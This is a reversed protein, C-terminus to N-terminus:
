RVWMQDFLAYGYPSAQYNGVRRSTLDPLRPTYLPVVAAHDVLERDIRAALRASVSPSGQNALQAIGADIRKDCFHGWNIGCGFLGLIDIARPAGFWNGFAANANTGRGLATFYGARDPVYHLRTHYGLQRLLAVLYIGERHYDSTTWVLVTAGRTRSAAILPRARSLDAAKWTGTVDADVTYPCYRAFGPTTPPVLQCTPRALLAGGHLEAVRARDVAYNLAQRVRADDFPPRRVDLIVWVTAQQPVLKLESPYRAALQPVLASPVGRGTLLDAKGTLVQHVAQRAHKVIRYVIEDAYGRPRAAPSWVRFYPNRVISLQRGPAYSWIQYPGTSPIPRTGVDKLPTGAPVPAIPALAYLLNPDPATLRLTLTSPGSVVVGRSLDCPRHPKCRNAGVIRALAPAAWGGLTFERELSRRFDEARLPAGNSYRVGPRLHFTYSTGGDAPQPLAVALDPVLQTGASGGTPRTNTLGDYVTRLLAYTTTLNSVAPDISDLRSTDLVLLRGGYHERGSSQVAVWVGGDGAALGQPRNGIRIWHLRAPRSPDIRAVRDGFEASVWVSGSGFAVASPSGAVPIVQRVALTKADIQSVTDDLANAVWISGDGYAIGTPGTGVTPRGAITNSAPEIQVVTRTSEDTVWVFGGGVTIGRGVADTQIRKVILGSSPDIRYVSRDDANTVWVSGFGYAIAIPGSGVAIQRVVTRSQPNIWAVADADHDAVWVGGGGVTIGSPSGGVTITQRVAKSRPDIQSVTGSTSNAAWVSGDGVAVATPAQDVPIRSRVHRGDILAVANAAVATGHKDAGRTLLVGGAVTALTVVLAAAGLAARATPARRGEVPALPEPPAAGRVPAAPAELLDRYIAETEPSPYTGLEEALLRRCREYVQLAEARNGAAVHAEMLRRYGAERFPALAIAQETWAAAEAPRGSRLCAEGLVSLGRGRVEVLERRKEEVWSGDEGPLFAQRAQGEATTAAAIAAALQDRALAAEAEGVADAAAIVDIWVGEPLDLRYCGFASTLLIRGDLARDDLFRRLRSALVTLAKEWGEPPQDGWLADALEDKPVPRGEAALYAFLLRAQRGPFQQEDVVVGDAEIAIPGTLFVRV